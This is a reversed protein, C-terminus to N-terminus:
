WYKSGKRHGLLGYSRCSFICFLMGHNFINCEISAWKQLDTDLLGHSLFGLLFCSEFAWVSSLGFFLLAWLGVLFVLSCSLDLSLFALFLLRCCFVFKYCFVSKNCFVARWYFPKLLYLYIPGLVRKIWDVNNPGCLGLDKQIFLYTHFSIHLLVIFLFLFWYSTDVVLIVHLFSFCFWLFHCVCCSICSSILYLCAASCFLALRSHCFRCPFSLLCFCFITFCTCLPQLVVLRYRALVFSTPGCDLPNLSLPKTTPPFLPRYKTELLSKKQSYVRSPHYRVWFFYSIALVMQHM